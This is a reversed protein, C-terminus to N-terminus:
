GGPHRENRPSPQKREPPQLIDQLPVNLASASVLRNRLAMSPHRSVAIGETLSKKYLNDGERLGGILALGESGHFMVVPKRYTVLELVGPDSLGYQLRSNECLRGWAPSYGRSPAYRVAPDM